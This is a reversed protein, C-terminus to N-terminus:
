TVAGVQAGEGGAVRKAYWEIQPAADIEFRYGHGTWFRRARPNRGFISALVRRCDPPLRHEVDSVVTSGIGMGQADERVLLLNVTVDSPEIYGVTLDVFGVLAAGEGEAEDTGDGRDRDDAAIWRAKSGPPRRRALVLETRRRTDTAAASLETRVEQVSPTELGLASLYGPTAEYLERVVDADEPVARRYALDFTPERSSSADPRADERMGVTGYAHVTGRGEGTPEHGSRLM